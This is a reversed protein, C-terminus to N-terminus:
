RGFRRLMVRVRRRLAQAARWTLSAKVAAKVREKTQRWWGLARAFWAFKMLQAETLVFLRGVLATGVLKALVIVTLGLGTHGQHILWLAALKVPFLLVAPVLFLVLAWRSSLGQILQELRALPPWKAVWGMFRTLPRWGWEEIFLIAAAFALLVFRLARRLGRLVRRLFSV